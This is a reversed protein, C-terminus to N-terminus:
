GEIPKIRKEMEQFSQADYETIAHIIYQGEEDVDITVTGPTLTISNALAVRGLETKLRTKTKLISPQIPMKPHLTRYAVDLNAIVIQYLFWPLYKIVQFTQNMLTKLRIGQFLFEHSFFAVGYSCVVGLMLHMADFHGSLLIWFSFLVGFTLVVSMEVGEPKYLARM